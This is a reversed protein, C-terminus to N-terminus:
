QENAGAVIVLMGDEESVSRVLHFSGDVSLPQGEVPKEIAGTKVYITLQNIFVGLLANNGDPQTLIKDLICPVDPVGNLEHKEAFEGLNLFVNTVDSAIADKFASM